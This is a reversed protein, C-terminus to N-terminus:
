CFRVSKKGASVRAHSRARPTQCRNSFSSSSSPLLHHHHLLPSLPSPLTTTTITITTTSSQLHNLSNSQVVAGSSLRFSGPSVHLFHIECQPGRAFGMEGVIYGERRGGKAHNVVALVVCSKKDRILRNVTQKYAAASFNFSTLM